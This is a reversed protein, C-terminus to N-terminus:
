FEIFLGLAGGSMLLSSVTPDTIFRVIREAWNIEFVEVSANPMQLATLLEIQSAITGDSIKTKLASVDTLTLVDGKKVLDKLDDTASVMAEAVKRDRGNREATSGMEARFYSVIKNEVPAAGGEVGMQIPTAAGM